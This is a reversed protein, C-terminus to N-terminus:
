IDFNSSAIHVVFGVTHRVLFEGLTFAGSGFAVIDLVSDKAIVLLLEERSFARANVLCLHLVNLHRPQIRLALM